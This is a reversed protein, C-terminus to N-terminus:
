QGLLKSKNSDFSDSVDILSKLRTIDSENMVGPRFTVSIQSDPGLPLMFSDTVLTSWDPILGMHGAKQALYGWLSPQDHDLVLLCTSRLGAHLLVHTDPTAPIDSRLARSFVAEGPSPNRCPDPQTYTLAAQAIVADFSGVETDSLERPYIERFSVSTDLQDNLWVGASASGQQPDIGIVDCGLVSQIVTSTLGCGSGVDLVTSGPGIGRVRLQDIIWPLQARVMPARLGVSLWLANKPTNFIIPLRAAENNEADDFADLVEHSIAGAISGIVVEPASSVPLGLRRFIRDVDKVSKSVPQVKLRSKKGMRGLGWIMQRTVVAVEDRLM